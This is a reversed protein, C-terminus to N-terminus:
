SSFLAPPVSRARVEVRRVPSRVHLAPVVEEMWGMLRPGVSRHDFSRKGRGNGERFGDEFAPIVGSLVALATPGHAQVQVAPDLSAFAARVADLSPLARPDFHLVLEVQTAGAAMTELLGSVAYPLRAVRRTEEELAEASIQPPMKRGLAWALAGAICLATWPRAVFLALPAGVVIALAAFAYLGRRGPVRGRHAGLALRLQRDAEASRLAAQGELAAQGRAIRADHPDTTPSEM